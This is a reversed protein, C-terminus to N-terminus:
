PADTVDELTEDVDIGDSGDEDTAGNQKAISDVDGDLTEQGPGAPVSSHTDDIDHEDSVNNPDEETPDFM